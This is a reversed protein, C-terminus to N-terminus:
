QNNNIEALQMEDWCDRCYYNDEYQKIDTQADEDRTDMIVGCRACIVNM